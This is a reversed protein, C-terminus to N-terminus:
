EHCHYFRLGKRDPTPVPAHLTFHKRVPLHALPSSNARVDPNYGLDWLYIGVDPRRTILFRGGPVLFITDQDMVEGVM